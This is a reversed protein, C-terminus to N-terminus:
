IHCKITCSVTLVAMRNFDDGDWLDICTMLHKWFCDDDRALIDRLHRMLINWLIDRLFKEYFRRTWINWWFTENQVKHVKLLWGDIYVKRVKQVKKWWGDIYVKQVKKLWGDDILTINRWIPKFIFLMLFMDSVVLFLRIQDFHYFFILFPWCNDFGTFIYQYFFMWFWDINTLFLWFCYFFLFILCDFVSLFRDFFTVFFGYKKHNKYKRYKRYMSYKRYTRYKIYKRYKRYKKYKWGDNMMWWRDEMMWWGDDMMWWGDDMMWWGDDM